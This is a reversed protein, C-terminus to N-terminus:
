HNGGGAGVGVPVAARVVTYAGILRRFTRAVEIAFGDHACDVASQIVEIRVIRVLVIHTWPSVSQDTTTVSAGSDSEDVGGLSTPIFLLLTSMSCSTRM